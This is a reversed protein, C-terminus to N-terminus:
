GGLFAVLLANVKQPAERTPFHGVGDIVVRQYPGSFYEDQHESMAPSSCRDDGGHIVLTPVSILRAVRRRAEIDAYAPDPEAQGWRVRYSHLTVAPWDPNAFSAATTAFVEDDYFSPPSWTQWQYRAFEVGDDRVVAAGRETGMFWQYWYQRAQEFSPTPLEGPSWGVSLAAMRTVRDPALAGLLYAVRAGWDHGVLAFTGLGLADAFELVDQALASIQGSRMTADSHFRTPGFGRVYPVYTRWGAAHLAPVPADFTRVDDPWGHLLIVASGDAPGGSEFGVRLVPTDV